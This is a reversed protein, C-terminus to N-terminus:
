SNQAPGFPKNKSPQTTYVEKLYAPEFYALDEFIKEQMKRAVLPGAMRASPVIGEAFRFRESFGSLFPRCKPMGDGFFLVPHEAEAFRAPFQQDVVLAAPAHLQSMDSLYTATYVEMRRADLMPVLALPVAQYTAVEHAMLELSSLAILPLDLQFCLGKATSTGIRLGTYSGPGASIAVAQLDAHTAGAWRLVDAVLVTLLSAHSKELGSEAYAVLQGTVTHLAVSGSM